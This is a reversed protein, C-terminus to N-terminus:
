KQKRGDKGKAAPEKAREYFRMETDGVAILDGDELRQRHAPSGQVLTVAEPALQELVFETQRNQIVAHEPAVRADKILMISNHPASGITTREEYLIFQKGTLPGTVIRVWAEKTVEEVLGILLGIAMGLVCLALCRGSMSLWYNSGGTATILIQLVAGGIFGGAAGGLLGNRMKSKVPVLAAQGIGLILGMFSWGVARLLTMGAPALQYHRLIDSYIWQALGGGVMGGLLGFLSGAFAGAVMKGTAGTSYGHALGLMMGIALGALGFFVTSEILLMTPLQRSAGIFAVEVPETLAWGLLGGLLGALALLLLGKLVASGEQQKSGVKGATKGAEPAAPLGSFGPAPEAPIDDWTVVVEASGYPRSPASEEDDLTVVLSDSPAPPPPPPQSEDDLDISLTEGPAGTAAPAGAAEPAPAAEDGPLDGVADDDLEVVLRDDPAAPTPRTEDAM